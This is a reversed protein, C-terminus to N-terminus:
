HGCSRRGLPWWLQWARICRRWDRRRRGRCPWPGARGAPGMRRAFLPFGHATALHLLTEAQAQVTSVERRYHPLYAAWYQAVALSYPPGLEQALALAERSRQLAQTPYGRFWLVNAALGLCRVGLAVGHRLALTRQQRPDTHTIM